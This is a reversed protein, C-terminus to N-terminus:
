FHSTTLARVYREVIEKTNADRVANNAGWALGRVDPVHCELDTAILTLLNIIISTPLLPKQSLFRFAFSLVWRPVKSRNPRCNLQTLYALTQSLRMLEDIPPSYSRWDFLMFQGWNFVGHVASLVSSPYYYQHPHFPFARKYQDRVDRIVASTPRTAVVSSYAALFYVASTGALQEMGDAVPTPGRDGGVCCSNFAEFCSLLNTSYFSLNVRPPPVLTGLFNVVLEKTIIDSSTQLIWSVCHFDLETVGSGLVQDPSGSLWWAYVRRAFEIFKASIWSLPQLIDITLAILLLPLILFVNCVKEWGSSGRTNHWLRSCSSCFTSHEVLVRWASHLSGPILRFLSPISHFRSPISRFLGPISRFLGPVSRFLGPISRFLGPISRVLNSLPTQYPCDISTTGAVVIFLYFLVGFSTVGIVVAAVTTHIEWLYKSLACGLLLLAAQLMVPLSGIVQDFYWAKIGNLKRQRDRSREIASGRLDISDYKNLWQKGLMAIFAALLSAFLSAYLLCQTHIIAQPPGAWQPLAPTDGGFTTNDM